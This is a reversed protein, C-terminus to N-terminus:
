ALSIVRHLDSYAFRIQRKVYLLTMQAFQKGNLPTAAM